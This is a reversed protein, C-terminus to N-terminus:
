HALDALKVALPSHRSTFSRLDAQRTETQIERDMEEQNDFYYALASHIEALSLHCHLPSGTGEVPPSLPFWM